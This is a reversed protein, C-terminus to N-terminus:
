GRYPKGAIPPFHAAAEHAQLKTGNHAIMSAYRPRAAETVNPIIGVYAAYQGIEDETLVVMLQGANEFQALGPVHTGVIKM